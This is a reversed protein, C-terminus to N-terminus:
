RGHLCEELRDALADVDALRTYLPAPAMRVVDPQRLDVVVGKAALREVVTAADPLRVTLMTGRAAPERPTLIPVGLADLRAELRATLVEARARLAAMGVRDFLAMSARLAALQLIPPNSLQWGEAGPIPQFGPGMRFRSSKDHGWWGAFRPLESEAHRQHVFVGGLGGPGANLYKYNCWVAFDVQWDHLSLHLNGAGHALDLGFVAGIGHTAARLVPVDFAQGTLFNCQGLLVLAVTDGLEHLTALIDSTRLTFEGERPKLEVVADAPDHGHFRAQSDVAHRDSPFAGGEIVIRYRRATPRYFSVMMLHLNVTLTNMVVVESPLAGVLRATPETLLEHYRFWGTEPKFHGEVGWRAWDDLERLVFERAQRPQLGLSHGAFYLVDGGSPAPPFLFEGRATAAIEHLADFDTTM